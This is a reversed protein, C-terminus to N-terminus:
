RVKAPLPKHGLDQWFDDSAALFEAAVANDIPGLSKIACEMKDRAAQLRAAKNYRARRRQEIQGRVDGNELNTRHFYQTIQIEYYRDEEPERLDSARVQVVKGLVGLPKVYVEDNPNLSNM